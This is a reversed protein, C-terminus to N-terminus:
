GGAVLVLGPERVGDMCESSVEDEGSFATVAGDLEQV